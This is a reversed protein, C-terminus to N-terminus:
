DGNCGDGSEEEGRRARAGGGGLKRGAAVKGSDDLQRVAARGGILLGDPGGHEM